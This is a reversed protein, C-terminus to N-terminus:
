SAIAEAPYIDPRLQEPPIGTAKSISLVREAPVQGEEWRLVTTKNVGFLNAIHELTLGHDARYARLTSTPSNMVRCLQTFHLLIDLARHM